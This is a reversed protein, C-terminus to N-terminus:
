VQWIVFKFRGIYKVALGFFLSLDVRKILDNLV